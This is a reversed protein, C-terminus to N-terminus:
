RPLWNESMHRVRLIRVVEGDTRYFVVYPYRVVTLKRADLLPLYPGSLPFNDLRLTAIRIAGVVRAAVEESILIHYREIRDIDALARRLWRVEAM